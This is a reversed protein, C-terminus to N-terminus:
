ELCYMTCMMGSKHYGAPGPFTGCVGCGTYPPDTPEPQPYPYPAPPPYYSPSPVTPKTPATDTTGDLDPNNTTSTNDSSATSTTSGATSDATKDNVDSSATSQLVVSHQAPVQKTVHLAQSSGPASVRQVTTAASIAFISAIVALFIVPRSLLASFRQVYHKM